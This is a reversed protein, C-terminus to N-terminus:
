LKGTRTSCILEDPKCWEIIWHLPESKHRETQIINFLMDSHTKNGSFAIRLTLQNSHEDHALIIQWQQRGLKETILMDIDDPYITSLGVRIRHGFSSRGQLIFKRAPKGMPESWAAIDGVPYRILPMLKRTLNTVVLMGTRNEDKIPEGTM